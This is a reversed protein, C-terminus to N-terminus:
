RRDPHAHAEGRQDPWHLRVEYLGAERRAELGAARGYLAAFRQRVNEQALQHGHRTDGGAPLPNRVSLTLRDGEREGSLTIEGGETLAEIGHYIANELLPQLSLPPILADGPLAEVSWCVRLREGLRLAEIALYRRCLELEERLPIRNGGRGLSVRFLDALNEVAAEAQAPATRTLSAITNMSNFLFHPRIRAQLAELRARSEARVNCAWQHQVYFYRLVLAIVLAGIALNRGLFWLHDPQEGALHLVRYAGESLVAVILLMSLYAITAAGADSLKALLRRGACLLANSTLAAWQVFLSNMGLDYWRDGSPSQLPALTLVFAFLQALVVVAFVMRIGCFDPLFLEAHQRPNVSSVPLGKLKNNSPGRLM